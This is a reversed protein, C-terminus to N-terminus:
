VDESVGVRVIQARYEVRSVITYVINPCWDATLGDEIVFLRGPAKVTRGQLGHVTSAYAPAWLWDDIIADSSVEIVSGIAAPILEGTEPHLVEPLKGKRKRYTERAEGKPAFRIRVREPNRRAVMRGVRDRVGVTSAVFTDAPGWSAVAEDLTMTAFGATQYHCYQERPPVRWMARKLEKLGEEKARHDEECMITQDCNEHL